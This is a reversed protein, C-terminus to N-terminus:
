EVNPMPEIHSKIDQPNKKRVAFKGVYKLNWILKADWNLVSGVDDSASLHM